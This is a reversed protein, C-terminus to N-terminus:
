LFQKFNIKHYPKNYFLQQNYKILDLNEIWYKRWNDIDINMLRKLEAIYSIFRKNDNAINNYSYDIFKPLRFGYHNQLFTIFGSNSFPLIFHGKILPDFTKETVAISSGHEITEGYVSIFTNQYYDIHPPSYGGLHLSGLQTHLILNKSNDGIHGLASYNDILENVLLSRYKREGKRSNNPAVFIKNKTEATFQNAIQYGSPYYYWLNTENNWNFDSYYAKTRNFLFDYFVIRPDSLNIDTANTIVIDHCSGDINSIWHNIQDEHNHKIDFFFSRKYNYSKIIDCSSLGPHYFHNCILIDVKNRHDKNNYYVYQNDELDFVMQFSQYENDFEPDLVTLM